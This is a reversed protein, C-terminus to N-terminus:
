SSQPISSPYSSYLSHLSFPFPPPYHCTMSFSPTEGNTSQSCWYQTIFCVHFSADAIEEDLSSLNQHSIAKQIQEDLEPSIVTGTELLRKLAYELDKAQTRIDQLKQQM